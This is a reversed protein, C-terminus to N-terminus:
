LGTMAKLRLADIAAYGAEDNDFYCYLAKVKLFIEEFIFLPAQGSNVEKRAGGNNEQSCSVAVTSLLLLSFVVGVGIDM